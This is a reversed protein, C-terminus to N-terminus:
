EGKNELFNWICLKYLNLFVLNNKGFCAYQVSSFETSALKYTSIVKKSSIDYIKLTINSTNDSENFIREVILLYKFDKSIEISIDNTGKQEETLTYVIEKELTNMNIKTTNEPIYADTYYMENKANDYKLYSADMLEIYKNDTGDINITGLGETWEYGVKAYVIKDETFEYPVYNKSNIVDTNDLQSKLLLKENEFNFDSVFLGEDNNYALKQGDSSIILNYVGKTNKYKNKVIMNKYDIEWIETDNRSLNNKELDVVTLWLTKDKNNIGIYEYHKDIKVSKLEVGKNINYKYITYDYELYGTPIGQEDITKARSILFYNDNDIQIISELLNYENIFDTNIETFIEKNANNNYIYWVLLIATVFIWVLIGIRVITKYM